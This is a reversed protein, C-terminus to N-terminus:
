SDPVVTIGDPCGTIKRWRAVVARGEDNDWAAAVAEHINKGDRSHHAVKGEFPKLGADHLQCLRNVHFVCGSDLPSKGAMMELVGLLADLHGDL